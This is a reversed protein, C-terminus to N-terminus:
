ESKALSFLLLTSSNSPVGDVPPLFSAKSGGYKNKLQFRFVLVAPVEKRFFNLKTLKIQQVIIYFYKQQMRYLAKKM